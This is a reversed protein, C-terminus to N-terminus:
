NKHNKEIDLYINNNNYDNCLKNIKKMKEKNEFDDCSDIENIVFQYIEKFKDYIYGFYDVNLIINRFNCIRKEEKERDEKLLNTKYTSDILNGEKDFNCYAMETIAGSNSDFVFIYGNRFVDRSVRGHILTDNKSSYFYANDDSKRGERDFLGHYLYYDDGEKILYTGKRYMDDEFEGVFAEFNAEDFTRKNNPESLWIYIGNGEKKNNKWNGFYCENLIKKNRIEPSWLYIGNKSRQDDEFYGFYKDGNEFNNLGYGERRFIENLRGIFLSKNKTIETLYSSKSGDKESTKILINNDEYQGNENIEQLVKLRDIEISNTSSSKMNRSIRM